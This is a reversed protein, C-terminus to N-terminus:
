KDKTTKISQKLPDDESRTHLSYQCILGNTGLAVM